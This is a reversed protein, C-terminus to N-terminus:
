GALPFAWEGADALHELETQDTNLDMQLQRWLMRHAIEIVAVVSLFLILSSIVPNVTHLIGRSMMYLLVYTIYVASQLILFFGMGAMGARSRYVVRSTVLLSVVVAAIISRMYELRLMLVLLLGNFIALLGDGTAASTATVSVGITAADTMAPVLVLGVPFILLLAILQFMLAFQSLGIYGHHLRIHRAARAWGSLFRGSPTIGILDYQGTECLRAIDRSVNLVIHLGNPTGGALLVALMVILVPLELMMILQCTLLLGFLFVPLYMMGSPRRFWFRNAGNLSRYFLPHHAPFRFIGRWLRWTVMTLAAAGM